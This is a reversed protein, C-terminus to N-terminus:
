LLIESTFITFHFRNPFSPWFVARESDVIYGNNWGMCGPKSNDRKFYRLYWLPHYLPQKAMTAWCFVTNFIKRLIHFIATGNCSRKNVRDKWTTHYNLCFFVHILLTYYRKAIAALSFTSTTVLLANGLLAVSIGVVSCHRGTTWHFSHESMAWDTNLIVSLLCLHLNRHGPAFTVHNAFDHWLLTWVINIFSVLM